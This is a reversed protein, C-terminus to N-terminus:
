QVLVVESEAGREGGLYRTLIYDFRYLSLSVNFFPVSTSVQNAALAQSSLTASCFVRCPCVSILGLCFLAATKIVLYWIQQICSPKTSFVNLESQVLHLNLSLTENGSSKLM